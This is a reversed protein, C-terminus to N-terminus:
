LHFSIAQRSIRSHGPCTSEIPAEVTCCSCKTIRSEPTSWHAGQTSPMIFLVTLFYYISHVAIRFAGSWSSNFSVMGAIAAISHDATPQAGLSVKQNCALTISRRDLLQKYYETIAEGLLMKMKWRRIGTQERVKVLCQILTDTESHSPSTINNDGADVDSTTDPQWNETRM